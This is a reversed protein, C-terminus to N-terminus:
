MATSTLIRKSNVREKLSWFTTFYRIWKLVLRRLLRRFPYPIPFLPFLSLTSKERGEGEVKQAVCAIEICALPPKFGSTNKQNDISPGIVTPSPPPPSPPSILPFKRKIAILHLYSGYSPEQHLLTGYASPPPLPTPPISSTLLLSVWSFAPDSLTYFTLNLETYTWYSIRQYVIIVLPWGRWSPKQTM